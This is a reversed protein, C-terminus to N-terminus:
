KVTITGTLGKDALGKGNWAHDGSRLPTFHLEALVFYCFM